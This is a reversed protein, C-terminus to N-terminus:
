RDTEEPEHRIEQLLEELRFGRDVAEDYVFRIAPTAKLRLRPAIERRIFPTASALGKKTDERATGEGLVTYYIWAYHLDPSVKAGTLTVFGVRPDKVERQLIQAVEHVLLDAVRQTRKTDM